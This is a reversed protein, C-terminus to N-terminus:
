NWPTFSILTCDISNDFVDVNYFFTSDYLEYKTFDDKMLRQSDCKFEDNSIIETKKHSSTENGFLADMTFESTIKKFM